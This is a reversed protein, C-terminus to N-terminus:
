YNRANDQEEKLVKNKDNKEWVFNKKRGMMRVPMRNSIKGTTVSAFGASTKLALPTFCTFVRKITEHYKQCCDPSKNAETSLLVM